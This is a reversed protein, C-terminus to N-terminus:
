FGGAAIMYFGVPKSSYILPKGKLNECLHCPCYKIPTHCAEKLLTERAKKVNRAMAFMLAEYNRGQSIYSKTHWLQRVEWVYMKLAPKGRKPELGNLMKALKTTPKM